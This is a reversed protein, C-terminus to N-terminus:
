EYDKVKYSTKKDFFFTNTNAMKKNNLYNNIVEIFTNDDIYSGDLLFYSINNLKDLENILNIVENTYIVTGEKEEKILYYNTILYRSSYFIPLYGYASVIINMKSNSSIENIEEYTIDSSILSYNVGNNYYFNNTNVSTNLHEISIILDKKFNIRKAINLISLDYFMVKSINSNNIKILVAEVKKLDKNHMMKNISVIIKKNTISALSIIDDINMRFMPSICLDEVGILIAEIKSNLIYDLNNKSSPAVIYKNMVIVDM